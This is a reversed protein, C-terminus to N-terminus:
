IQTEKKAQLSPYLSDFRYSYGSLLTRAFPKHPVHVPIFRNSPIFHLKNEAKTSQITCKSLGSCAFHFQPQFDRFALYPVV